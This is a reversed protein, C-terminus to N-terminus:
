LGVKVYKVPYGSIEIEDNGERLHSYAQARAPVGVAPAMVGSILFPLSAVIAGIAGYLLSIRVMPVDVNVAFGIALGGAIVVAIVLSHKTWKKVDRNLFNVQFPSAGEGSM